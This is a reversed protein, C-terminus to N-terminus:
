QPVQAAAHLVIRRLMEVEESMMPLSSISRTIVGQMTAVDIGTAEAGGVLGGREWAGVLWWAAHARGTDDTLDLSLDEAPVRHVACAGSQGMEHWCVFAGDPDIVLGEVQEGIM